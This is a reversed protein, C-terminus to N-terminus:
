SPGAQPLPAARRSEKCAPGVENRCGTSPCNEQKVTTDNYEISVFMFLQM